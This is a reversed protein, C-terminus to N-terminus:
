AAHAVRLPGADRPPVPEVARFAIGPPVVEAGPVWAPPPSSGVVQRDAAAAVWRPADYSGVIQADADRGYALEDPSKGRIDSGVFHFVSKKRALKLIPFQIRKPVLTLGFYFHFVDTSPLLKALARFQVAQRRWAPGRPLHLNEDAEPHAPQTNFVVLRTDIGKRRLAQVNTWGIG